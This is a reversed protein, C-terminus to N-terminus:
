LRPRVGVAPPEEGPFNTNFTYSKVTGDRNFLIYLEKSRDGGATKRGYFYRWSESGGDLGKQYPEGLSMLLDRKTTVGERIGGIPTVVFDRGISCAATGLVALCLLKKILAEFFTGKRAKVM